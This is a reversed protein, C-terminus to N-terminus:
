NMSLTTLIEKHQYIPNLHRVVQRLDQIVIMITGKKSDMNMLILSTMTLTLNQTRKPVPLKESHPVSGMVPPLDPNKVTHKSKFTIGTV